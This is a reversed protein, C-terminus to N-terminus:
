PLVRIYLLCLVLVFAMPVNLTLASATNGGKTMSLSACHLACEEQTEFNNRNGQCGGYFFEICRGSTPHYYFRKISARCPGADAEEQCYTPRDHDKPEASDDLCENECQDITQFNNNNGKCGGYLFTACKRTAPDYYYRSIAAKCDGTDPAQFCPKAVIRKGAETCEHLCQQKTEFNNANGECGGYNFTNCAKSKQDYYYREITAKCKGVVPELYCMDSTNRPRSLIHSQPLGSFSTGMCTLECQDKTEFNNQNGHCGGYMFNYCAKAKVDYYYRSLMARCQGVVADQNCIEPMQFALLGCVLGTLAFLVCQYMRM